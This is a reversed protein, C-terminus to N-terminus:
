CGNRSRKNFLQFIYEFMTWVTLVTVGLMTWYIIESHLITNLTNSADYESFVKLLIISIIFIFQIVTKLKASKSTPIKNQTFFCFRLVTTFVDRFIIIFVCWFEVIGQIAFAIFASITLIKDVLPDYNEGFKSTTGLKRALWGDIADTISAIVFVLLAEFNKTGQIFLYIFVFSLILRITTIINPLHKIL